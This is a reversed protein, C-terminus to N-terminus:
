ESNRPVNGLTIEEQVFAAAEDASEFERNKWDEPLGELYDFVKGGSGAIRVHHRCEYFRIKWKLGPDKVLHVQEGGVLIRSENKGADDTMKVVGKSCNISSQRIEGFKLIKISHLFYLEKFQLLNYYDLQNTQEINGYLCFRYKIIKQVIISPM